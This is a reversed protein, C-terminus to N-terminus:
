REESVQKDEGGDREEEKGHLREPVEQSPDGGQIEGGKCCM